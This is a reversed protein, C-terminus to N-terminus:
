GVSDTAPARTKLPPLPKGDIIDLEGARRLQELVRQADSLLGRFHRKASTPFVIQVLQEDSMTPYFKATRTLDWFRGQGDARQGIPRVTVGPDHWWYALNILARYARESKWGWWPLNDSVQPGNESGPPLLVEIIVDDDLSGPGRPINRVTVVQWLGGKRTEPDYWPVRADISNLADVARMLRPWYETPRPKRPGPYLEVLLQRLPIKLAIAHNGHRDQQKTFLISAVWLRLALPASANRPQHRLSGLGLEYLALPLAPAQRDHQFGPMVQHGDPGQEMHAAVSFLNGARRDGPPAMAVRAPIIRKESRTNSSAPRPRKTWAEVLPTLPFELSGADGQKDLLTNWHDAIQTLNFAILLNVGPDAPLHMVRWSMSTVMHLDGEEEEEIELVGETEIELAGETELLYELRCESGQSDPVSPSAEPVMLKLIWYGTLAMNEPPCNGGNVWDVLEAVSPAAADGDIQRTSWELIKRVREAPDKLTTERPM